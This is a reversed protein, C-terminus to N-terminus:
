ASEGTTIYITNGTSGAIAAVKTWDNRFFFTEVSNPLLPLSNAVTAVVNDDGFNVYVVNTGSNFIRITRSGVRAPAVAVNATTALVALNVTSGAEGNLANTIIDFPRITVTTM